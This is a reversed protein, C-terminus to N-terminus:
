GKFANEAVWRRQDDESRTGAALSMIMDAAGRESVDLHLGNMLLTMGLAAFGARKNGDVCPHNRLISVCIAAALDFVTVSGEAYAIIRRMRRWRRRLHAAIGCGWPVVM